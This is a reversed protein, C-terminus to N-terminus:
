GQDGNRQVRQDCLLVFSAKPTKAHYTFTGATPKGYFFNPWLGEGPGRFEIDATAWAPADPRLAYVKGAAPAKKKPTPKKKDKKPPPKGAQAPLKVDLAILLAPALLLALAILLRKTM